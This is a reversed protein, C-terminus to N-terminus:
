PQDKPSEPNALVLPSDEEAMFIALAYRALEGVSMQYFGRHAYKAAAAFEQKTIYFVVRSTRLNKKSKKMNM